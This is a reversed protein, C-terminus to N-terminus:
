LDVKSRTAGIFSNAVLPFHASAEQSAVTSLFTEPKIETLNTQPAPSVATWM